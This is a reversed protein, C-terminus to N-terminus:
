VKWFEYREEKKSSPYTILRSKASNFLVGKESCYEKNNADVKIEELSSCYM